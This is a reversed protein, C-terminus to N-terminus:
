DFLFHCVAYFAPKNLALISFAALLSWLGFLATKLWLPYERQWFPVRGSKWLDTAPVWRGPSIEFLNIDRKAMTFAVM